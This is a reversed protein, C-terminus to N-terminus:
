RRPDNIDQLRNCVLHKQRAAYKDLQQQKRLNDLEVKLYYTNGLKEWELKDEFGGEILEYNDDTMYPHLQHAITDAQEITDAKITDVYRSNVMLDYSNM